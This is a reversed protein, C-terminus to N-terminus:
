GSLLLWELAALVKHKRIRVNDIKNGEKFKGVRPKNFNYTLGLISFM